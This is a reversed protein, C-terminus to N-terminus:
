ATDDVSHEDDVEITDDEPAPSQVGQVVKRGRRERQADRETREAVRAVDVLRAINLTEVAVLRAM